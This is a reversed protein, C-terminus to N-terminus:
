AEHILLSSTQRSAMRPRILACGCRSMPLSCRKRVVGVLDDSLADLDTEDRLKASFVELTKAADYKRRYFRRDIFGQIRRRMPSFLAAIALTSVVIALQPQEEQGTFARLISQTTVVGGLYVVALMATLAGYVLTRNILTDIEYLRYRSIAVSVAIPTAVLGSVLLVVGVQLTWRVGTATYVGYGLIAGLVVLSAAYALWKIQQREVGNARHFRVFLSIVAV